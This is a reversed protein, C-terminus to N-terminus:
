RGVSMAISPAAIVTLFKAAKHYPKLLCFPVHELLLLARFFYLQLKMNINVLKDITFINKAFGLLLQLGLFLVVLITSPNPCLLQRSVM